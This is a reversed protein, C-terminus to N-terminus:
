KSILKEGFKGMKYALLKPNWIQYNFNMVITSSVKLCKLCRNRPSFHNCCIIYISLYFIVSFYCKGNNETVPVYFHRNKLSQTAIGDKSALTLSTM